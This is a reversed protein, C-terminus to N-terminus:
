RQGPRTPWPSGWGVHPVPSLRRSEPSGMTFEANGECGRSRRNRGTEAPLGGTSLARRRRLVTQLLGGCSSRSPPRCTSARAAPGPTTARCGPALDLVQPQSGQSASGVPPAVRSPSRRGTSLSERAHRWCSSTPGFPTEPEERPRARQPSPERDGKWTGSIRRRSLGVGGFTTGDHWCERSHNPPTPASPPPPLCHCRAGGQTHPAQYADEGYGGDAPECQRDRERRVPPPREGHGRDRDQRQRGM